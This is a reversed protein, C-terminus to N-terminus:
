EEQLTLQEEQKKIAEDCQWIEEEKLKTERMHTHMEKICVLLEKERRKRARADHFVKM